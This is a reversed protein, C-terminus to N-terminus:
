VGVIKGATIWGHWGCGALEEGTSPDRSLCNISPTLTPNEYNGDWQWTPLRGDDAPGGRLRLLGCHEKERRPCFFNFFAAQRVEGDGLRVLGRNSTDVVRYGEADIRHYNKDYLAFGEM